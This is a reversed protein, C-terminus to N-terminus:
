QSEGLADEKMVYGALTHEIDTVEIPLGQFLRVFEQLAGYDNRGLRDERPSGKGCLHYECGPGFIHHLNVWEETSCAGAGEVNYRAIIKVSTATFRQLTAQDFMFVHEHMEVSEELRGLM